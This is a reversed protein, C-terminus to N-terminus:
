CTTAAAGGAFRSAIWPLVQPANSPVVDHGADPVVRYDVTDGAICLRQMAAATVPEPVIPDQGGQLVLLPVDPPLTGTSNERLGSSWPETARPDKAFVEGAPVGKLAKILEGACADELLKSATTGKDTLISPLKAQPEVASYGGALMMLYASGDDLETVHSAVAPLDTPPAAAVIGRLRLEPAYQRAIEGTFLAAQGGQSHGFVVLDASLAGDPLARAARVGDLISRGESAGVLYPHLGPTGIGEYDTAVVADGAALLEPGQPVAGLADHASSPACRDGLGATGHAWAVVRRGGAPAPATPLFVSGSVAIDAGALSRSHYLIRWGRVGDPAALSESRILAGPAAPPLPDPPQYFPEVVPSSDRVGNLLGSVACSSLGALVAALVLVTTRRLLRHLRLTWSTRM